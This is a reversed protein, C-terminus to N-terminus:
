RHCCKANGTLYLVGNYQSAPLETSFTELTTNQPVLRFANFIADVPVVIRAQPSSLITPMSFTILDLGGIREDLYKERAAIVERVHETIIQDTDSNALLTHKAVDFEALLKWACGQLDTASTSSTRM